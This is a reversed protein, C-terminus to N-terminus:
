TLVVKFILLKSYKSPDSVIPIPDIIKFEATEDTPMVNLVFPFCRCIQEICISLSGNGNFNVSNCM